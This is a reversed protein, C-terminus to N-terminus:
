GLLADALAAGLWDRYSSTSWGSLATLLHHLHPSTLAFVVAAAEEVDLDGSLVGHEALSDVFTAANARHARAGRRDFERMAEDAGASEVAVMLIPGARELVEASYSALLDVARRGDREGLAAAFEPREAVPVPREDGVIAVGAVHDFLDAKTAFADYVTREGVGAGAAM